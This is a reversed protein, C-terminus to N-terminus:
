CMMCYSAESTTRKACQSSLQRFRIYFLKTATSPVDRLDKLINTNKQTSFLRTCNIM